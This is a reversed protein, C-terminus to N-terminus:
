EFREKYVMETEEYGITPLASSFAEVDKRLAAIEPFRQRLDQDSKVALVEKFEALKKKDGMKGVLDKTITVARHFFEAVREMDEETAGRTTIAPTGLRVGGPVIASTDGPVTNKNTIISALEMVREARAGDVGATGKVDVPVLHNDTGGSVIKYGRKILASSLAKANKVVQSQYAKYTPETCLKLASALAAITHNHPGGQLGPFVSFDIREQLDTPKGTARDTKRYFIMAGRPGRLSKHTTTTVVDAQQFPSPIAGGAVLGSVHAIDCMLVAGVKDCIQRMRDHDIIRPYASSGAIILTPRFLSANKELGDYHILHTKEDLRYPMSEFFISTASVKKKASYFGHSLHGGHPLDLGM